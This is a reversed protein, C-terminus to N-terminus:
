IGVVYITGFFIINWGSKLHTAQSRCSFSYNRKLEVLSTSDNYLHSRRAFLVAINYVCLTAMTRFIVYLM